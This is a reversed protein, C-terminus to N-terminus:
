DFFATLKPQAERSSQKFSDKLADWFSYEFNVSSPSFGDSDQLCCCTTFYNTYYMKFISDFRNYDCTMLFRRGGLPYAIKNVALSWLTLLYAKVNRFGGKAIYRKHLKEIRRYDTESSICKNYFVAADVESEIDTTISCSSLLADYLSIGMVTEFQFPFFDYLVPHLKDLECQSVFDDDGFPVTIYNCIALDFEATMQQIAENTLYLLESYKDSLETDDWFSLKRYDLGNAILLSLIESSCDLLRFYNDSSMIYNVIERISIATLTQSLSVNEVDYKTNYVHVIKLQYIM